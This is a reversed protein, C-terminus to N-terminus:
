SIIVNLIFHYINSGVTCSAELLAECCLILLLIINILTKSCPGEKSDLLREVPYSIGLM